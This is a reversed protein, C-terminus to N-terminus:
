NESQKNWKRIFADVENAAAEASINSHSMAKVTTLGSFVPTGAVNTAPVDLVWLKDFFPIYTGDGTEAVM